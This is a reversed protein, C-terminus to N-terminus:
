IEWLQDNKWDESFGMEKFPVLDEYEEFLLFLRDKWHNYPAIFDLLSKVVYAQM